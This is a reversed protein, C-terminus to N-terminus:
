TSTVECSFYLSGFCLAVLKIYKDKFKSIDKEQNVEYNQISFM